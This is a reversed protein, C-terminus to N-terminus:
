TPIGSSVEDTQCSWATRPHAPYLPSPTPYRPVHINIRFVLEPSYTLHNVDPIYDLYDGCSGGGLASAPPIGDPMVCEVQALVATSFCLVAAISVLIKSLLTM